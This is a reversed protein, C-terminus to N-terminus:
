SYKFKATLPTPMHQTKCISLKFKNIKNKGNLFDYKQFLIWKELGQVKELERSFKSAQCQSWHFFKRPLPMPLVFTSPSSLAQSSTSISPRHPQPPIFSLCPSLFPQGPWSVWPRGCLETFWQRYFLLLRLMSFQKKLLGSTGQIWIM